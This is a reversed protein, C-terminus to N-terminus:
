SPHHDHNKRPKLPTPPQEPSRKPPQMPGTIVIPAGAAQGRSVVWGTDVSGAPASGAAATSISGDTTSAYVAHGPLAATTSLAFFDGGGALTVGFGPPVTMTAAQLYATTLGQQTRPVFGLPAGSGKNTLTESSSDAPDAWAFAAVTLGDVGARFGDVPAPVSRLPNATAIEGPYGEPWSHHVTTQFSM